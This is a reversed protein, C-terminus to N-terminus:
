MQKRRYMVWFAILAILLIMGGIQLKPYPMWDPWALLYSLMM